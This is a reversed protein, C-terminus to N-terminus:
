QDAPLLLGSQWGRLNVYIKLGRQSRIVECVVCTGGLMCQTAPVAIRQFSIGWCLSANCHHFTIEAQIMSFDRRSHSWNGQAWAVHHLM